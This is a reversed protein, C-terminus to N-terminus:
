ILHGDELDFVIRASVRTERAYVSFILVLFFLVRISGLRASVQLAEAGAELFAIAYTAM